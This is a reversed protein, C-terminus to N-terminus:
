QVSTDGHKSAQTKPFGLFDSFTVSAVSLNSDSVCLESFLPFTVSALSPIVGLLHIDPLSSM